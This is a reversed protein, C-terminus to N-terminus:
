NGKTYTKNILERGELTNALKAFAQEYTLGKNVEQVDKIAKELAEKPEKDVIVDGLEKSMEAFLNEAARLIELVAEDTEAFKLLKGKQDPTGKMYKFVSVARKELAEKEAAKELAEKETREKELAKLVAPPIASKAIKEGDFDITDEEKAKNVEQTELETIKAKLTEITQTAEELLKEVEQDTKGVEETMDSNGKRKFLTVKALPDDGADVLSVEFLELDTLETTM